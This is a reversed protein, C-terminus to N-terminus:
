AARGVGRGTRRLMDLSDQLRTITAEAALARREQRQAALEARAVRDAMEDLVYDWGARHRFDADRRTWSM